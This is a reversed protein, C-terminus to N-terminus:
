YIDFYNIDRFIYNKLAKTSRFAMIEGMKKKILIIEATKSINRFFSAFFFYVKRMRSVQKPPKNGGEEPNQFTM